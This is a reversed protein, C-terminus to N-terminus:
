FLAVHYLLFTTAYWPPFHHTVSASCHYCYSVTSFHGEILLYIPVNIDLQKINQHMCIVWNGPLYIFLCDFLYDTMLYVWIEVIASRVCFVNLIKLFAWSFQECFLNRVTRTNQILKLRLYQTPVKQMFTDTVDTLLLYFYM